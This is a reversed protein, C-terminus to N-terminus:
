FTAAHRHRDTATTFTPSFTEGREVVSLLQARDVVGHGESGTSRTRGARLLLTITNFTIQGRGAESSGIANATAADRCGYACPQGPTLLITAKAKRARAACCAALHHRHPRGTSCTVMKLADGRLAGRATRAYRGVM